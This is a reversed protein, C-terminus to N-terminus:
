ARAFPCGSRQRKSVQLIDSFLATSIMGTECGKTRLRLEENPRVISLSFVFKGILREIHYLNWRMPPLFGYVSEDVM